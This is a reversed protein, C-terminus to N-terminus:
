RRRLARRAQELLADRVRTRLSRRVTRGERGAARRGAWSNEGAVPDGDRRLDYARAPPTEGRIQALQETVAAMIRDTAEDLVSPQLPRGYLDDLDVPPGAVVVVEKRPVPRPLVSYRPLVRHAGWQAVPLVPVRTTLALRAAGSRGTMPWLDPDRTLTGEPFMAVCRGEQLAREAAVLSEGARTTGRYVPIQRAAALMRGVVPVEFLSSKALFHPPAGHDLLFHGFTLPDLDTVHNAVAVFGGAPPVHEGGRWRRRTVLIIAPKLVVVFVWYTVSVRRAGM